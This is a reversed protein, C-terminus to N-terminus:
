GRRFNDADPCTEWHVTHKQRDLGDDDADVTSADVPVNFESGDRKVDVLWVIDARCTKSRCYGIEHDGIMRSEFFDIAEARLAGRTSVDRAQRMRNKIDDDLAFFHRKCAYRGPAIVVTCNPHICTAQSM